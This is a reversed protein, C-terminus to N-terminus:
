ARTQGWVQMSSTLMSPWLRHCTMINWNVKGNIWYLGDGTELWDRFNDHSADEEWRRHFIWEYTRKHAHSIEELRATMERFHLSDLLKTRQKATIIDSKMQEIERLIDRYGRTVLDGLKTSTDAIQIVINRTASDLPALGELQDAQLDHCRKRSFTM